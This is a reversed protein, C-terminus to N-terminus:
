SSGELPKALAIEPSPGRVRARPRLEGSRWYSIAVYLLPIGMVPLGVWLRVDPWVSKLPIGVCYILLSTFSLLVTARRLVRRGSLVAPAVLWSAYWPWYWSLGVTLLTFITWGWAAIMANFTRARWTQWLAVLATIALPIWRSLNGAPLALSDPSWAPNNGQGLLAALGSLVEPLKRNAITSLSHVFFRASPDDYLVNLTAPGQWFPIYFAAFTALFILLAQAVRSMGRALRGGAVDGPTQWYLLWLYGPLFVIATFKVLCALTLALVALRWHGKLHLLLALLVPTLMLLDNHGSIGFEIIFLPNWAYAVTALLQARNTGTSGPRIWRRGRRPGNVGLGQRPMTKLPPPWMIGAIRWILVINALHAADALLKHGVVSYVIDGNGFRALQAVGGALMLWLPGYPSPLDRWYLYPLWNAADQGAFESPVHSYPNAGFIAWIRGFWSYAFVDVAFIERTFFVLALMAATGALILRLTARRKAGILHRKGAVRLAFIYTGFLWVLVLLYLGLAVLGPGIDADTRQESAPFITNLWGFLAPWNDQLPSYIQWLSASQLLSFLTGYGLVFLFVAILLSRRVSSTPAAIRAALAEEQTAPAAFPKHKTGSALRDM